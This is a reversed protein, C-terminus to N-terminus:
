DKLRKSVKDFDSIIKQAKNSHDFEADAKSIATSHSIKGKVELIKFENFNLFKNVSNALGDMTFTNERELLNEIYNFYGAVTREM